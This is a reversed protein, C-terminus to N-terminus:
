DRLMAYNLDRLIADRYKEDVDMSRLLKIIAETAAQRKRRKDKQADGNSCLDTVQVEEYNPVYALRCGCAFKRSELRTGNVHYGVERNESTAESGCTPCVEDTIHKLQM